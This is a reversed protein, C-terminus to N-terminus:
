GSPVRVAQVQSSDLSEGAVVEGSAWHAFTMPLTMNLVPGGFVLVHVAKM